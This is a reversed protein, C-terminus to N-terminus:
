LGRFLPRGYPFFPWPITAFLVLFGVGITVATRRFRAKDDRAKEARATGVHLVTACVLMGFVHEIMFFRLTSVRMAHGASAFMRVGLPSLGLWMVLGLLLQIDFASVFGRVIRADAPGFAAGGRAGSVCRSFALMGLVLVVWRLTSHLVLVLAHLAEM